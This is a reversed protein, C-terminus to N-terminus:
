QLSGRQWLASVRTQTLRGFRRRDARSGLAGARRPRSSEVSPRPTVTPVGCQGAYQTSEITGRKNCTGDIAFLMGKFSAFGLSHHGIPGIGKLLDRRGRLPSLVRYIHWDVGHSLWVVLHHVRRGSGLRATAVVLQEIMDPPALRAIQKTLSKAMGTALARESKLKARAARLSAKGAFGVGLNRMAKTCLERISKYGDVRFRQALRNMVRCAHEHMSLLAVDQPPSFTALLRKCSGPTTEFATTVGYALPGREM